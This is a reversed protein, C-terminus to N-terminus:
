CPRNARRRGRGERLSGTGARDLRTAPVGEVAAGREVDDLVVAGEGIRAGAAVTIPGLVKAGTGVEVDAELRPGQWNGARLGVTVFPSIVTGTGIEVFGDIVVQGHVIYVGPAVFVPDGISLQAISMAFRHALRPLIPVGLAQLRAKLRYSAQALFADTVWILRFVQLWADVRSRFESREGRHELAVRADALVAEGIRPHRSRVEVIWAGPDPQQM